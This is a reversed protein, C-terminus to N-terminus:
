LNFIVILESDSLELAEPVPLLASDALDFDGVDEGEDEDEDEFFFAGVFASTFDLTVVIVLLLEFRLSEFDLPFSFSLSELEDDFAFLALFWFTSHDVSGM